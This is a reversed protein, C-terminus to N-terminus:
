QERQLGLRWGDLRLGPGVGPIALMGGLGALLGDALAADIGAGVCTGEGVNSSNDSHHSVISIDDPPIGAAELEGVADKAADFDDFLGNVTKM